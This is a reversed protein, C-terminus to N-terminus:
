VGWVQRTFSDVYEVYEWMVREVVSVELSPLFRTQAGHFADEDSYMLTMKLTQLPADRATRWELVDVLAALLANEGSVNAEGDEGFDAAAPAMLAELAPVLSGQGALRLDTLHPFGRFFAAFDASTMDQFALSLHAATVRAGPLMHAVDRVCQSASRQFVGKFDHETALILTCACDETSSSPARLSAKFTYLFQNLTSLEITSTDKLFPFIAPLGREDCASLISPFGRYTGSNIVGMLDETIHIHAISPLRLFSLLQKHIDAPHDLRLSRLRPLTVSQLGASPPITDLHNLCSRLSLTVLSTCTSLIEHLDNWGSTWPAVSLDLHELQAYLSQDVIPDVHRLVLTRLHVFSPIDFAIPNLWRVCSIALARLPPDSSLFERLARAWEMGMEDHSLTRLYESHQRLINLTSPASPGNIGHLYIDLCPSTAKARELCLKLWDTRPSHPHTCRWYERTSCIFRRWLSCVALLTTWATHTTKTPRVFSDRPLGAGLHSPTIQSAAYVCSFVNHLVELPLTHIPIREGSLERERKELRGNVAEGANDRHPGLEM